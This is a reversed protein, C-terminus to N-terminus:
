QAKIITYKEDYSIIKQLEMLPIEKKSVMLVEAFNTSMSANLVDKLTEFQSTVTSM